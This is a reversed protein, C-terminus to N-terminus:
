LLNVVDVGSPQLLRSGVYCTFPFLIVPLPVLSTLYRYLVFARQGTFEVVLASLPVRLSRFNPYLYPPIPHPIYPSCV